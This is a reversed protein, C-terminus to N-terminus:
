WHHEGGKRVIELVRHVKEADHHAYILTRQGNNRIKKLLQNLDNHQLLEKVLTLNMRVPTPSLEQYSAYNSQLM